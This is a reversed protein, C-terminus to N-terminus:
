SEDRLEPEGAASLRVAICPEIAPLRLDEAGVDESIGRRPERLPRM